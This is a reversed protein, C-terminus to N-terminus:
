RASSVSHTDEASRTKRRRQQRLDSCTADAPGRGDRMADRASRAVAPPPMTAGLSTVGFSMTKMIFPSSAARRLPAGMRPGRLLYGFFSVSFTVHIAHRVCAMADSFPRARSREISRDRLGSSVFSSSEAPHPPRRKSHNARPRLGPFIPSETAAAHTARPMALRRRGM